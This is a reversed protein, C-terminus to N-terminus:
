FFEGICAQAFKMFRARESEPVKGDHLAAIVLSAVRLARRGKPLHTMSFVQDGTQGHYTFTFEPEPESAEVLEPKALVKEPEAMVEFLDVMLEQMMGEFRKSM